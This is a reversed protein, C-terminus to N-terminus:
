MNERPNYAHDKRWKEAFTKLDDDIEKPMVIKLVCRQDGTKGKRPKVGKGKLRLTQGSSAGAPVNVRVRGDITPVDIKGGLVAEDFSIPVDVVIDNGERKFTKHPRVEIEVYADGPPGSGIGPQGKGKLRITQGNKIGQPIKVELSSGDPLVIRQPNGNVADLFDVALHYRADGGKMDFRQGGAAGRPGAGGRQGFMQSFIDGLDDFDGEASYQQAGPRGGYQKYYQHEPTEQGSADIEGRDFRARKEPDGLLDNAGSIEQFKAEANKDSPNLDPHYKKALKRYAKKIEADSASKDVGLIKYPDDM